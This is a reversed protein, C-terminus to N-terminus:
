GNPGGYVQAFTRDGDYNRFTVHPADFTLLIATAEDNRQKAIVIGAPKETDLLGTLKDQDRHVIIVVDADRGIADSEALHRLKPVRTEAKQDEAARNIQALAMVHCDFREALYRLGRSVEAVQRERNDRKSSEASPKVLGVHDIVILAIRKNERSLKRAIEEAIGLISQMTQTTSDVFYVGLPALEGVAATFRAWQDQTLGNERRLAKAPIGARAAALRGCFLSAHMELSVYLVVVDANREVLGLSMTAALSSKGVSTRAAVISVEKPFLGVIAQDLDRLGTSWHAAQMSQLRQFYATLAEKMSVFHGSDSVDAGLTQLSMVAGSLVEVPSRKQDQAENALARATTVIRRRIWAQRITHAYARAQAESVTSAEDVIRRLGDVGPSSKGAKVLADHLKVPEHELGSAHCDVMALVIDRHASEALAEGHAIIDLVMEIRVLAPANSGSWMLAGLLAREAAAEPSLRRGTPGPATPVRVTGAGPDAPLQGAKFKDAEDLAASM